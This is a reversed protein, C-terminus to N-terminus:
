ELLKRVTTLLRRPPIPKSLFEDMHIDEDTPFLTVYDINAVSTVMLIPIDRHAPDRHMEQSMRLGDLLSSMVVDLIVM